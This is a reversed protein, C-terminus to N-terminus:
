VRKFELEGHCYLLVRGGEVPKNGLWLLRVGDGVEDVIMKRMGGGEKVWREYKSMTTGSVRQLQRISTKDTVFRASADFMTRAITRNEVTRVWPSTLVAYFLVFATAHM